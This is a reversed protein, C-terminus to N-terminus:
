AFATYTSDRLLLFDLYIDVPLLARVSLCAPGWEVEALGSLGKDRARASNM